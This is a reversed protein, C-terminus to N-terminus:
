RKLINSARTKFSQSGLFVQHHGMLVQMSHKTPIPVFSYSPITAFLYVCM